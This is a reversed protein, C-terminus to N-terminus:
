QRTNRQLTNCRTATHQLTHSYDQSCSKCHTTNCHTAIHQLTYCHTATHSHTMDCVFYIDYLLQVCCCAAVRLLVCCCVAVCQLVDSQLPQEIFYSLSNQTYCHTAAHSHTVDCLIKYLLQQLTICQLTNCRTFSDRRVHLVPHCLTMPHRITM